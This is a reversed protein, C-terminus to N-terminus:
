SQKGAEPMKEFRDAPIEGISYVFEMPLGRNDKQPREPITSDIGVSTVCESDM